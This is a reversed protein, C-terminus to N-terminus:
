KSKSASILLVFFKPFWLPALLSGQPVGKLRAKIWKILNLNQPCVWIDLQWVSLVSSANANPHHIPTSWCRACNLTRSHLFSPDAQQPGDNNRCKRYWFSELREWVGLVPLYHDIIKIYIALLLLSYIERFCQIDRCMSYYRSDHYHTDTYPYLPHTHTSLSSHICMKCMLMGVERLFGYPHLM